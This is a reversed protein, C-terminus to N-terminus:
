PSLDSLLYIRFGILHSLQMSITCLVPTLNAKFVGDRVGDNTILGVTKKPYYDPRDELLWRSVSITTILCPPSKRSCLTGIGVQTKHLVLGRSGCSELVGNKVWWV